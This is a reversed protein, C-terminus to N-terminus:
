ETFDKYHKHSANEERKCLRATTWQTCANLTKALKADLASITRSTVNPSVQHKAHTTVNKKPTPVLILYNANQLIQKGFANMHKKLQTKKANNKALLKLFADREVTSLIM